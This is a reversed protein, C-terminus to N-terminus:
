YSFDDPRRPRRWILIQQYIDVLETALAGAGKATKRWGIISNSDAGVFYTYLQRKM